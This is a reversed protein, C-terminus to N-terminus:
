VTSVYKTKSRKSQEYGCCAARILGNQFSSVTTAIEFFQQNESLTLSYNLLNM